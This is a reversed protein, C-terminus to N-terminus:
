GAQRRAAKQGEEVHEHGQDRQGRRGQEDESCLVYLAPHSGTLNAWYSAAADRYLELALYGGMSLGAVAASRIGLQRLLGLVDGALLEMTSAPRAGRSQGLGRYDPAIVRFRGALAALQPAWMGSHLPFAHLLLVVDGGSGADVYHLTADGIRASPMAPEVM